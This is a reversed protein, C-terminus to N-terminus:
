TVVDYQTDPPRHHDQTMMHRVENIGSRFLEGQPNCWLGTVRVGWPTLHGATTLQIDIEHGSTGVLTHETLEQM